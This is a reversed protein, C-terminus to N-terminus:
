SPLIKYTSKLSNLFYLHEARVWAYMCTINTAFAYFCVQPTNQPYRTGRPPGPPFPTQTQRNNRIESIIYCRSCVCCLTFKQSIQATPAYKEAHKFYNM